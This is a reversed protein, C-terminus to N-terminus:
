RPDAGRVAGTDVFLYEIRDVVSAAPDIGEDAGRAGIQALVAPDVAVQQLITRVANEIPLFLPACVTMTRYANFPAPRKTVQMVMPLDTWHQPLEEPMPVPVAVRRGNDRLVGLRLLQWTAALMSCSWLRRGRGEDRWLEIDAFISHNLAANEAPPVWTVPSKMAEHQETAPSRQGNCLWGTQRVPPRAATTDPPPDEVLRAEVLGAPSLSAPLREPEAQDAVGAPVGSDACGSERALYDIELDSAHAAKLLKPILTRPTEPVAFYDDILVCTSIRPTRGPFLDGCAERAAQAWRAIRRFHGIFFEEDQRLDPAYFHGLEISLHALPVSEVRSDATSEFFEADARM